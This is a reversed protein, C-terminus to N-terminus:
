SILAALCRRVCPPAPTGEAETDDTESFSNVSIADDDDAGTALSVPPPPAVPTPPADPADAAFLEEEDKQEVAM